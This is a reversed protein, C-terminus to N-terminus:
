RLKSSIDFVPQSSLATEARKVERANLDFSKLDVMQITQNDYTKFYYKLTQPDRVATILTYDTHVIGKVEQRAVGLPIDFQNLIHFAQFVAKESNESPTATISFIAARVFRSPPTFDGPLGVMGSGQGLPAIEVGEVHIPKANFPTLNVYNRLNTM